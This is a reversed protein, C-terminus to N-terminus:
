NATTLCTSLALIQQKIDQLDDDDDDDDDDDHAYVNELNKWQTRTKRKM